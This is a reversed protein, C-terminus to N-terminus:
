FRKLLYDVDEKAETIAQEKGVDNMDVGEIMVKKFSKVGLFGFVDELYKAGQNLKWSIIAPYIGGSSQIYIMKREKNDLLGKVKDNSIDILKGNIIICDMYQKLIAPFFLSWMPASIIYKDADIFQNSLRNIRNIQEKEEDNLSDFEEGEVLSARGSILKYNIMPIQSEYLDLEEVFDDPHKQKYQNIMYRAVTKSTSVDEPKSSASIYLVKSM